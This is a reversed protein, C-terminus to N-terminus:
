KLSRVWDNAAPQMELVIAQALLKCNRAFRPLENKTVIRVSARRKEPIYSTFLCESHEVRRYSLEGSDSFYCEIIPSDVVIVPVAVKYRETKGDEQRALASAAKLVSVAVGYAPDDKGSFAQKIGYGGCHMQDLMKGLSSKKFIADRPLGDIFKDSVVGLSYYTPRPYERLDALVLWPKDSSKCEIVFYIQVLGLKDSAYAVVDIERAKGQEGDIYLSSHTVSFDQQLFTSKCFVELPIGTKEVWGRVGDILDSDESHM